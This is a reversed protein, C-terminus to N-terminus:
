DRSVLFGQAVTVLGTTIYTPQSGDKPFLNVGGVRDGDDDIGQTGVLVVWDTPVLTTEDDDSEDNVLAILENIADNIKRYAAKRPDAEIASM